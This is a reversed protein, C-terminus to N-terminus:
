VPLEVTFTSGQGPASQVHIGGGHDKVIRQVIYLGLGLGGFSKVSTAREFRNFIREQDEKAIGIGFDQVSFVARGDQASVTIRIESGRGYKIANTILNEVVEEIRLQDWHGVVAPQIDMKLACGAASFQGHLRGIVSTVVDSLSVSEPHLVMHGSSIQSVELLQDIIKSLRVVHQDSFEVMRLLERSRTGTAIFEGKRIFKTLLALQVKLPTLPTKLEHSAISMFEERIQIAKQSDTYLRANDIAVAARNAFEEALTLDSSDYNREPDTLAMSLVGIVQARIILPVNITSRIRVAHLTKLCDENGAYAHLEEETVREWLQSRGTRLAVAPPTPGDPNLPSRSLAETVLSQMEPDSAAVALPMLSHDFVICANAFKGVALRALSAFTTKYDLSAALTKSAEALFEWRAQEKLAQARAAQERVLQLQIEEAVKRETIDESIGLLFLPNGAADCIPMKKSHLYRQGKHRTTIRNEPLEVAEKSRLVGRDQSTFVDAEEKPFFDYDNKGILEQRSYGLLEEGAKNFRIFRLDKADKVFIMDPINEVISNLFSNAEQIAEAQAQDSKLLEARSARLSHELKKQKTIDQMVSVAGTLNGCMDRIPACSHLIVAREGDFRLIEIVEGISTEGKRLARSAGWDEPKIPEGTDHWWAQYVGYEDISKARPLPGGWIVEAMGNCEIVRGASDMQIVGAPIATLAYHMRCYARRTFETLNDRNGEHM